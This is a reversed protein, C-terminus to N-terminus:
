VYDSKPTKKCLRPQKKGEKEWSHSWGGDMQLARKVTFRLLYHDRRMGTKFVFICAQDLESLSPAM